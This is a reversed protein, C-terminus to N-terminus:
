RYAVPGVIAIGTYETSDNCAALDRADDITIFEYAGEHVDLGHRGAVQQHDGDCVSRGQGLEDILSPLAHETDSLAEGSSESEASNSALADIEEQRIANSGSLFDEMDMKMDERPKRAVSKAQSM